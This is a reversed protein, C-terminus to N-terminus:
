KKFKVTLLAGGKLLILAFLSIVAAIVNAKRGLQGPGLLEM